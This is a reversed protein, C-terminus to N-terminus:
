TRAGGGGEEPSPGLVRSLTLEFRSQVAALLDGLDADAIRLTAVLHKRTEDLVTMRATKVWMRVAAGSVGYLAGIAASTTGDVYHLRLITQERPSLSALAHEFAARFERRYAEKLFHLEPDSASTPLVDLPEDDILRTSAGGGQKLNQATRIAAVRLWGGLPGRGSYDLLKPGSAETGVFLKARLLQCLDDTFAASADIRSVYRGVHVMFHREFEAHARSCGHACAFALYLDAGHLTRLTTAPESERSFRAVLSAVFASADVSITPWRAKGDAALGRAAISADQFASGELM